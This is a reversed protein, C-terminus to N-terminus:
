KKVRPVGEVEQDVGDELACEKVVAEEGVFTERDRGWRAVVRVGGGQGGAAAAALGGPEAVVVPKVAGGVAGVGGREEPLFVGM